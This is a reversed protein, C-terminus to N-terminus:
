RVPVNMAEVRFGDGRRRILTLGGYDQGLYFMNELNMGLLHCLIIRNVGRGKTAM